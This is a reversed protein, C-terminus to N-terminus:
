IGLMSAVTAWSSDKRGELSHLYIQTVALSSHVLLGMIEELSDGAEKRLMAATHRLTHVRIKGADLGAAAAHRKVLRRVSSGDMARAPDNGQFIYEDQGPRRCAAMLYDTVAEIVPLPLDARQDTRGKGSWRYQWALGRRELDGWRVCRWESNRRGLLLYGVLLAYDRKGRITERNPQALIAKAEEASLWAAKGYPQVRRRQSESGAPNRGDLECENIAYKYFSSVGSVRQQITSEAQGAARMRTVWETVDSRSIQDLPLGTEVVLERVAAAYARRTNASKRSALWLDLAQQWTTTILTQTDAPMHDKSPPAGARDLTKKKRNWLALSILGTTGKRRRM